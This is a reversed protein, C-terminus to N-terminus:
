LTYLLTFSVEFTTYFQQQYCKVPDLIVWVTLVVTDVVLMAVVALLLHEDRTSQFLPVTYKTCRCM